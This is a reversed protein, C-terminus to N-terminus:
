VSQARHSIWINKDSHGCRFLFFPGIPILRIEVNMHYRSDSVHEVPIRSVTFTGAYEPLLDPHLPQYPNEQTRLYEAPVYGILHEKEAM